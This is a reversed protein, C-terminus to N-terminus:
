VPALYSLYHAGNTIHRIPIDTEDLGKWVNRWMHRSLQGHVLSVANSRYTLKLALINLYFNRRM